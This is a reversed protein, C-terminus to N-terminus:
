CQIKDDQWLLKNTKPNKKILENPNEVCIIVDGAFLSLNIEKRNADRMNRKRTENCKSPIKTHHQFATTLPSM